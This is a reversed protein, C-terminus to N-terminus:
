PGTAALAIGNAATCATLDDLSCSIRAGAIPAFDPVDLAAALHDSPEIGWTGILSWGLGGPVVPSDDLRLYSSDCTRGYTGIRLRLDRHAGQTRVREVHLAANATM